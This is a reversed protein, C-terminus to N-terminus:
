DGVPFLPSNEKNKLWRVLSMVAVVIALLAIQGHAQM